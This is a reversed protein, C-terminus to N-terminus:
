DHLYKRVVKWTVLLGIAVILSYTGTAALVVLVVWRELGFAVSWAWVVLGVSFSIVCTILAGLRLRTPRALRWLVRISRISLIIWTILALVAIVFVGRGSEPSNPDIM